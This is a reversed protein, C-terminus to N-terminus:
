LFMFKSFEYIIWIKNLHFSELKKKFFEIIYMIINIEKQFQLIIQVFFFQINNNLLMEIVMRKFFCFNLLHILNKIIYYYYM